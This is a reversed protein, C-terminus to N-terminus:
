LWPLHVSSGEVISGSVTRITGAQLSHTEISVCLRTVYGTGSHFCSGDRPTKSQRLGSSDVSGPQAPHHLAPPLSIVLMVLLQHAEEFRLSADAWSQAPRQSKSV